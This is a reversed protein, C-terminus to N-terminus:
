RGGGKTVTVAFPQSAIGNAVVELNYNGPALDSPIAANTTVVLAGTAVGMSAVTGGPGVASHNFTRCYRVGGAGDQLRVLPYNTATQSDDGYATAQSLGNFQTGSVQITDGPAFSGPCTQIAPRFSDQPAAADSHYAYFSSDDERAFFIDGTPLLLLRTVYTACNNNPPASTPNFVTGDYEFYSVPSNFNGPNSLPGAGALINGNPLIAAPGDITGLQTKGGDPSPIDPGNTWQVRAGPAYIATHQNGGVWFATGDYRLLGPGIENVASPIPATIDTPLTNGNAWTDTAITYVITQTPNNCSVSAITNDPMLVFSEESAASVTRASLTSWSNTAPNFKAVDTNTFSAMLFTGDPLVTCPSDGINTWTVAPNATSPPPSLTSWSNAVPDYIECTNTDDQSFSGSADSYEGGCVIVRGDALVASAFYLRDQNSDALRSWSGNAYSGSGDPTLKWWRRVAVSQGFASFREQMMISGDTLLFATGGDANSICFVISVISWLACFIYVLVAWIACAVTVIILFLVCVVIVVVVFVACFVTVIIAVVACVWSIVTVIVDCAWSCPWWSCCSSSSQQAWQACSQTTQSAWQICTQLAQTAWNICTRTANTVWDLCANFSVSGYAACRQFTLSYSRSCNSPLKNWTGPTFAM